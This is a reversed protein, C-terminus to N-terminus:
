VSNVGKEYAKDLEALQVSGGGVQIEAIKALIVKKREEITM